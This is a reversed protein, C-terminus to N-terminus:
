SPFLDIHALLKRFYTFRSVPHPFILSKDLRLLFPPFTETVVFLGDISVLWLAHWILQKCKEEKVSIELKIPLKHM